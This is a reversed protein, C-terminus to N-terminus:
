SADVGSPPSDPMSKALPAAPAEDPRADPADPAEDPHAPPKPWAEAAPPEPWAEAAPVMFRGNGVNDPRPGTPKCRGCTCPGVRPPGRLLTLLAMMEDNKPPERNSLYVRRDSPSWKIYLDTLKNMRKFVFDIEAEWANAPAEPMLAKVAADPEFYFKPDKGSTVPFCCSPAMTEVDADAPHSHTAKAAFDDLVIKVAEWENQAATARRKERTRELLGKLDSMVAHAPYVSRRDPEFTALVYQGSLFIRIRAQEIM